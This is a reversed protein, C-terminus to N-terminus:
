DQVKNDNNTRSTIEGSSQAYRYILFEDEALIKQFYHPNLRMWQREVPWPSQLFIFDIDLLELNKRWIAYDEKQRLLGKDCHTPHLGIRNVSAYSVKNQLRSGMLPYFFWNHGAHSWGASVAIKLSRDPQDCWLWGPVLKRPFDHLDTYQTYYDSRHAERYNQLALTLGGLALLLVLLPVSRRWILSKSKLRISLLFPFSLGLGFALMLLLNTVPHLLRFNLQILDGVLFLALILKIRPLKPELRSLQVLALLAIFALPVALFRPTDYAWFRRAMITKVSNDLYFLVLPLVALVSLWITNRNFFLRPRATFSVLIVILFLLFKPGATRVFRAPAYSFLTTLNRLDDARTGLGKEEAIRNYQSGSLIKQGAISVEIPYLPNKAEVWNKLYQHGGIGLMLMCGWALVTLQSAQKTKRFKLVAAMTLGPLLLAAVALASHKTGVALALALCLWLADPPAHTRLYRIFFLAACATEVFVQLDVYATTVYAFVMPSFCVMGALLVSWNRDLKFEQGLGYLAAGGLLLFPFNLLNVVLDSHFPLMLWSAFIEGNIPFHSYGDMGYPAAFLSLGHEQVWTGAFTLHYTLSDWALPPMFLSRMLTYFMVSGALLYLPWTRSSIIGAVFDRVAQAESHLQSHKKWLGHALGALILCLGAAVTKFYIHTYAMFLFLLVIQSLACIGVATLRVSFPWDPNIRRIILYATYLPGLTIVLLLTLNAFHELGYGM